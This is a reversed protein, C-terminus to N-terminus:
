CSDGSVEEAWLDREEAVTLNHKHLIHKRCHPRREQKSFYNIVFSISSGLPFSQTGQNEESETSITSTMLPPGLPGLAPMRRSQIQLDHTCDQIKFPVPQLSSQRGLRQSVDLQLSPSLCM